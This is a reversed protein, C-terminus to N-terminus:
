INEPVSWCGNFKFDDVYFNIALERWNKIKRSFSERFDVTDKPSIHVAELKPFGYKGSLECGQILLEKMTDYDTSINAYQM